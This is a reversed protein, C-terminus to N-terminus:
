RTLSIECPRVSRAVLLNNVNATKGARIHWKLTALVQNPLKGAPMVATAQVCRSRM